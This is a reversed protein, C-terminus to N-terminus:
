CKISITKFFGNRKHKRQKQKQKNTQKNTQKHAKTKETLFSSIKHVKSWVNKQKTTTTTKQKTKNQKKLNCWYTTWVNKPFTHLSNLSGIHLILLPLLSAAECPVIKSAFKNCFNLKGDHIKYTVIASASMPLRFTEGYM